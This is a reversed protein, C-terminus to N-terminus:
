SKRLASLRPSKGEHILGATLSSRRHDCWVLGSRLVGLGRGKQDIFPALTDVVEVLDPLRAIAFAVDHHLSDKGLDVFLNVQRKEITEETEDQIVIQGVVDCALVVRRQGVLVHGVDICMAHNSAQLEGGEDELVVAEYEIEEDKAQLTCTFHCPRWLQGVVEELVTVRHRLRAM